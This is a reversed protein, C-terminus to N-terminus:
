AGRGEFASVSPTRLVRVIPAFIAVSMLPLVVPLAVTTARALVHVDGHRAGIVAGAVLVGSTTLAIGELLLQATIAARTAGVARRVAIEALRATSGIVQVAFVGAGCLLSMVIPVLLVWHRMRHVLRGVLRALRDHRGVRWPPRSGPRLHVLTRLEGEVHHVIRELSASDDSQIRWSPVGRACLQVFPPRAPILLVANERARPSLLPREHLRGAVRWTGYETSLWESPSRGTAPLARAGIVVLAEGSGNTWADRLRASRWSADRPVRTRPRCVVGVRRAGVADNGDRVVRVTTSRYEELHAQLLPSHAVAGVCAPCQALDVAVDWGNGQEDLRRVVGALHDLITNTGAVCLLSMAILAVTISTGLADTQLARVALLLAIRM